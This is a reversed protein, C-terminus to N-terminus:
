VHRWSKGEAISGITRRAVGFQEALARQTVGSKISDRIAIVQQASLRARGHREGRPQGPGKPTPKRVRSSVEGFRHVMNELRTAWVLNDASNNTKDDDLHACELGEPCPGNFALCVARHVKLRRNRGARIMAYGYRDLRQKMIRPKGRAISMIQGDRSALYNPFGPIAM